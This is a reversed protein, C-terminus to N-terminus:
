RPRAGGRTHERGHVDEEGEAADGHGAFHHPGDETIIITIITIIVIVIGITTFFLSMSSPLLSRCGQGCGRSLLVV